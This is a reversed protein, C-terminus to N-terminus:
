KLKIKKAIGTAIKSYQEKMRYCHCFQWLNLPKSVGFSYLATSPLINAIIQVMARPFFFSFLGIVTRSKITPRGM